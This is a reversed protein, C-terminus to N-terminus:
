FQAHWIVRGGERDLFRRLGPLGRITKKIKDADVGTPRVDFAEGSLHKSLAGLEGDTLGTLVGELGEAIEAEAAKEPHADVWKQCADRAKSKAYTEAIWKRNAEVNAAMAKAQESKNRRGSTFRVSPHKRKLVYAARRARPGLKLAEIEPDVVRGKEATPSGRSGLSVPTPTPLLTSTGDQVTGVLTENALPGPLHGRGM